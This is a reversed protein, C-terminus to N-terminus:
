ARRGQIFNINWKLYALTGKIFLRTAHAMFLFALCSAGIWGVTFFFASLHTWVGVSLFMFKFLFAIMIAWSAVFVGFSGAWGAVLFGCILLFPGVVFLFNLPALALIAIVAGFTHSMQRGLSSAESATKIKMEATLNSAFLRPDGLSAVAVEESRGAAMADQLYEEQDRIIDEIENPPLAALHGRLAQLFQDKKM